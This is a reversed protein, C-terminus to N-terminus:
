VGRLISGYEVILVSTLKKLSLEIIVIGNESNSCILAEYLYWKAAIKFIFTDDGQALSLYWFVETLYSRFSVLLLKIYDLILYMNSKKVSREVRIKM